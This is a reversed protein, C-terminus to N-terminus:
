LPEVSTTFSMTLDLEGPLEQGNATLTMSGVIHFLETTGTVLRLDRNYLLEGESSEVTLESEKVDLPINPNSQMAYTVSLASSGIRDFVVGGVEQTGLYEYQKELTLTQGSGLDMPETRTWTDGVAVQGPLRDLETNAMQMWKQPDVEQKMAEDLQFFPDDKYEMATMRHDADYSSTWEAGTMARFLEEVPDLEPIGNTRRPNDSVFSFERGDPLTLRFDILDMRGASTVEGDSGISEIEEDIGVYQEVKTEVPMGAITLTQEITTEIRVHSKDGVSQSPDHTIEVKEDALAPAAILLLAFHICHRM